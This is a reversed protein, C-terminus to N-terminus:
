PSELRGWTRLLIPAEGRPQEVRRVVLGL